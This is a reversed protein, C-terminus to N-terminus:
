DETQLIDLAIIPWWPDTWPEICADSMLTVDVLCQMHDKPLVDESISSSVSNLM